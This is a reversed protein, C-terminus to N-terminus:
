AACAALRGPAAPAGGHAAPGSRPRCPGPARWRLKQRGALSSSTRWGAYSWYPAVPPVTIFAASFRCEPGPESCYVQHRKYLDAYSDCDRCTRMAQHESNDAVAVLSDPHAKRYWRPLERDGRVVELESPTGTLKCTVRPRRAVPQARLVSTLMGPGTIELDSHQLWNSPYWHWDLDQANSIMREIIALLTPNHKRAALMATWYVGDDPLDYCAVFSDNAQDVWASVPARFTM